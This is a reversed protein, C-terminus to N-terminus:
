NSKLADLENTKEDVNKRIWRKTGNDVTQILYSGSLGILTSMGIYFNELKPYFKFAEDSILVWLIPCLATIILGAIDKVLYDKLSLQLNAKTADTKLSRYKLCCHMIVGIYGAAFAKIVLEM